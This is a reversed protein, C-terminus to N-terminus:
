EIDDDFRRARSLRIQRSEIGPMVQTEAMGIMEASLLIQSRPAYYVRYRKCDQFAFFVSRSVPFRKGQIRLFYHELGLRNTELYLYARGNASGVCGVSLDVEIYRWHRSALQHAAVALAGLCVTSGMGVVVLPAGLIIAMQSGLTASLAALTVGGSLSAGVSQLTRWAPRQQSLQQRQAPSLFGQQNAALDELTFGLKYGLKDQSMISAM